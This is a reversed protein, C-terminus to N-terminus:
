GLHGGSASPGGDQEESRSLPRFPRGLDQNVDNGAGGDKIWSPPAVLLTQLVDLRGHLRGVSMQGM